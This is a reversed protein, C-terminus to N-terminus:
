ESVVCTRSEDGFFSSSLVQKNFSITSKIVTLNFLTSSARLSILGGM